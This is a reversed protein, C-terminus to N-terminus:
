FTLYVYVMDRYIGAPVRISPQEELQVAIIYKNDTGSTQSLPVNWLNEVPGAISMRTRLRYRGNTVYSAGDTSRLNMSNFRIAYGRDCSVHFSTASQSKYYEGLRMHPETPAGLMCPGAYLAPSLLTAIVATMIKRM